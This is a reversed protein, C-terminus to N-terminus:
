FKKGRKVAVVTGSQIKKVYKKVAPNKLANKVATCDAQDMSIFESSDFDSTAQSACQHGNAGCDNVWKTSVGKCHIAKAQADKIVDAAWLGALASVFLTMKKKIM